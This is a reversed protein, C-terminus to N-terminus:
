FIHVHVYKEVEVLTTAAEDPPLSLLTPHHSIPVILVHGGGPIPFLERMRPDSSTTDPLGGKTLTIYCEEGLSVLLHKRRWPHRDLGNRLISLPRVSTQPELSLVLM